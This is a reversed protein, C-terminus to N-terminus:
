QKTPASLSDSGRITANATVLRELLHDDEQMAYGLAAAGRKRACFLLLLLSIAIPWRYWYYVGADMKCALNVACLVGFVGVALWVDRHLKSEDCRDLSAFLQLAWGM